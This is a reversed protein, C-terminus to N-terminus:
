QEITAHMMRDDGPPVSVTGATCCLRHLDSAPPILLGTRGHAEQITAVGAGRLGM